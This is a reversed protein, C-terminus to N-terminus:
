IFICYLTIFAVHFTAKIKPNIYMNIKTCSKAKQADMDMVMVADRIISYVYSCFSLFYYKAEIEMADM